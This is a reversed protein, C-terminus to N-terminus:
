KKKITKKIKGLLDKNDKFFIARFNKKVEKIILSSTNCFLFTIKNDNKLFEALNLCRQLHGSGINENADTKIYFHM